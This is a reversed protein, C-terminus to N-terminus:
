DNKGFAEKIQTSAEDIQENVYKSAVSGVLASLVMGGLTVGTKQVLNQTAPTTAKVANGVVTGVSLSVVIDSVSKFVNLYNM